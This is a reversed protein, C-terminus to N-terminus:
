EEESEESKGASTKGTIKEKQSEENKNKELDDMKDLHDDAAASKDEWIDDRDHALTMPSADVGDEEQQDGLIITLPCFSFAPCKECGVVLAIPCITM